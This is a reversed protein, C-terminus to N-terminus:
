TVNWEQTSWNQASSNNTCGWTVARLMPARARRMMVLNWSGDWDGNFGKKLLISLTMSPSTPSATSKTQIIPPALPAAKGDVNTRVWGWSLLSM